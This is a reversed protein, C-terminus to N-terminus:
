VGLEVFLAEVAAVDFPKLLHRVEAREVFQTATPTYAGGTMFVFRAADEPRREVVRRFLEMGTCGPMMLDCLVVDFPADTLLRELAVESDTFVEVDNRTGLLIGLTEALLQEDDVVVVRRRRGRLAAVEGQSAVTPQALAPLQVRVTTGVGLVSSVHVDGGLRTVVDRCVPLGLGTGVGAPKTTFFPQFVRAVDEPAIGSGNDIFEICVRGEEVLSGRIELRNAARGEPLAQLANLVLNLFVQEIRFASGSVPPLGGLEVVPVVKGKFAPGLMRQVTDFVRSLDVPSREEDDVRSFAKLDRVIFAIRDHLQRLEELADLVELSAPDGRQMRRLLDVQLAAAMLPNNIEHAIGAALTGIVALREASALKEQMAVRETVDRAFALIVPGGEYEFPISTIEVVGLSGDPRRTRYEQPPLPEGAARRSLRDQMMALEEPVVIESLSRGIIGQPDDFGALRAAALNAALVNGRRLILIGDPAEAILRAFREGEARRAEEAAKQDSLDWFFSVSAPLGAITLRSSVSVIPVRRGSSQVVVTETRGSVQDGHRRSRAQEELRERDEPAVSALTPRRLLEDRPFGLIAVAADSLYVNRPGEVDVVTVAVGLGAVEAARLVADAIGDTIRLVGDSGSM